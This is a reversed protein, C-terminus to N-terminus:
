FFYWTFLCLYLYTVWLFSFKHNLMYITLRVKRVILFYHKSSVIHYLYVSALHVMLKEKFSVVIHICGSLVKATRNFRLKKANQLCLGPDPATLHPLPYTNSIKKRSSISFYFFHSNKKQIKLKKAQTAELSNHM